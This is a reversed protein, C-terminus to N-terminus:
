EDSGGVHLVDCVRAIAPEVDYAGDAWEADVELLEGLCFRLADELGEIRSAAAALLKASDAQRRAIMEVIEQDMM